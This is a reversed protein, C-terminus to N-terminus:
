SDDDSGSDFTQKKGESEVIGGHQKASSMSPAKGKGKGKKGKGDKGKGDKGKGDKGSKDAACTVRIWRGGYETENFKCAKEVSEKSSYQIFAIGKPRGEDNLPLGIRVIEGCEGFDKRLMAEDVDFSVGGVFATLEDNNGGGGGKDGKEGKKGKGEGKPPRDGAMNVKIYRGGYDTNNFALAAEIGKSSAYTIFAIGRPRGEDNMPFHLKTIEGCEEFDKRLTAEECSFPLGGVFVTMEEESKEEDKMKKKPPEQTAEAEDDDDAARKKAPASAPAKAKKAPPPRLPPAPSSARLRDRICM